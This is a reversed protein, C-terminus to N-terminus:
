GRAGLRARAGFVAFAATFSALAVVNLWELPPLGEVLVGWAIVISGFAGWALNTLVLLEVRPWATARTAVVSGIALAVLAAGILRWTTTEDIRMGALDTWLRPALLHQLGVVGAVWAHAVFTRRLGEPLRDGADVGQDSM